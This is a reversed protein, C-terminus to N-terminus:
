SAPKGSRAQISDIGTQRALQAMEAVSIGSTSLSLELLMPLNVGSIVYVNPTSAAISSAVNWPTGGALDVLILAPSGAPICDVLSQRFSDIDDGAALSVCTLNERSGTIAVTVRLLACGLDGHTAVIIPTPIPSM